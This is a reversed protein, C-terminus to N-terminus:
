KKTCVFYLPHYTLSVKGHANSFNASYQESFHQLTSKTWTSNPSISNVGTRKMHLLVEKPTNFTLVIEEEEVRNIEFGAQLLMQTLEQISAYQLSQGTTAAIERFNQKGFTSFAFVGGNKLGAFAKRFFIEPHHFWQFTSCSALLDVDAPLQWREADGAIFTYNEHALVDNCCTEMERCIDNMTFKEPHFYQVLLRSFFGTGCGIEVIHRPKWVVFDSLMRIMKAAIKRQARADEEYSCAAKSFRRILLEKEM